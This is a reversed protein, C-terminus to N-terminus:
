KFESPNIGEHKKFFKSLHSVDTFGFEDAIQKLKIEKTRLRQKILQLLLKELYERYTTGFNRKFYTSFYAPSINFHEAISKIGILERNYVNEQIYAAIHANTPTQKKVEISRAELYEKIMGFISLIQYHIISSRAVDITSNYLIINEFTNKLITQCPEKVSIKDQKLWQIQMIATPTIVHSTNRASPSHFEFYGPTSKIYTFRTTIHVTFYHRDGPALLFLDGKEYPVTIENFFHVGSGYHIYIVEFHDQAHLECSYEEEIVDVIKLPEFQSCRRM